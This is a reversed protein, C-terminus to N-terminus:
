VEGSTIFAVNEHLPGLDSIQPSDVTWFKLFRHVPSVDAFIFLSIYHLLKMFCEKNELYLLSFLYCTLVICQSYIDNSFM